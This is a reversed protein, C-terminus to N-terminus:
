KLELVSSEIVPDEDDVITMNGYFLKAAEEYIVDEINCLNLAMNVSPPLTSAFM